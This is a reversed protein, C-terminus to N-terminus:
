SAGAWERNSSDKCLALEFEPFSSAPSLTLLPTPEKAGLDKIVLVDGCSNQDVM